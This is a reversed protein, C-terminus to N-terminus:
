MVRLGYQICQRCTSAQNGIFIVDREFSKFSKRYDDFAQNGIFIVDSEFMDSVFTQLASAQNGIFIVDSEFGM